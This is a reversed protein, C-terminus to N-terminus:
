EPLLNHTSFSTFYPSIVDHRDAQGQTLCLMEGNKHNVWSVIIVKNATVLKNGHGFEINKRVNLRNFNILVFLERMYYRMLSELSDNDFSDLCCYIDGPYLRKSSDRLISVSVSSMSMNHYFDIQYKNGSSKMTKVWLGNLMQVLGKKINLLIVNLANAQQTTLKSKWEKFELMELPPLHKLLNYKNIYNAFNSGMITMANYRILVLESDSFQSRIIKIYKIKEDYVSKPSKDIEEFLRYLTRFYLPAFDHNNAYFEFYAEIARKRRVNYGIREDFGEQMDQLYRHLAEKGVYTEDVDKYVLHKLQENYIELLKFFKDNLQQLEYIRANNKSDERQLGFTFYLLVISLITGVVGGIFDGYQGVADTAVAEDFSYKRKYFLFLYLVIISLLASFILAGKITRLRVKENM